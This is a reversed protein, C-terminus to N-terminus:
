SSPMGIIVSPWIEEPGQKLMLAANRSRVVELIELTHLRFRSGSDMRAFVDDSLKGLCQVETEKQVIEGTRDMYTSSRAGCVRDLRVTLWLGVLASPEAIGTLVPSLRV